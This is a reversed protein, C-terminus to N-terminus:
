ARDDFVHNYGHVVYGGAGLRDLHDRRQREIEQRDLIAYVELWCRACLEYAHTPDLAAEDTNTATVETRAEYLRVGCGNCTYYVEEHRM